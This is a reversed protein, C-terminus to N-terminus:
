ERVGGRPLGDDNSRAEKSSSECDEYSTGKTTSQYSGGYRTRVSARSLIGSVGAIGWEEDGNYTKTSDSANEDIANISGKRSDYVAEFDNPLLLSRTTSLKNAYDARAKSSWLVGDKSLKAWKAHGYSWVESSTSM